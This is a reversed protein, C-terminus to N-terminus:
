RGGASQLRTLALTRLQGIARDVQLRANADGLWAAAAEGPAGQLRELARVAVELDGKDLASQAAALAGDVPDGGGNAGTRRVTVLRALGVKVRDWVGAGGPAIKARLVDGAMADFRGRLAELNPIGVAAHPTLLQVVRAVEPDDGAVAHLADLAASFSTDARTADFLQATALVLAESSSADASQATVAGEVEGLRREVGKMDTRLTALTEALAKTQAQAAGGSVGSNEAIRAELIDLRASLGQASKRAAAFAADEADLRKELATIRDQARTLAQAFADLRLSAASSAEPKPAGQEVSVGGFMPAVSPMWASRTVYAGGALFLVAFVIWFVVGSMPTSAKTPAGDEDGPRPASQPAGDGDKTRGKGPSSKGASKESAPDTSGPSADGTPPSVPPTTSKAEDSM